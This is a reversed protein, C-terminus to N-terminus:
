VQLPLLMGISVISDAYEKVYWKKSFVIHGPCVAHPHIFANRYLMGSVVSPVRGGLM